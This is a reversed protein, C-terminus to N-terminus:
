QIILINVALINLFRQSFMPKTIVEKADRYVYINDRDCVDVVVYNIKDLEYIFYQATDSKLLVTYNNSAKLNKVFDFVESSKTLIDDKLFFMNYRAWIGSINEGSLVVEKIVKFSDLQIGYEFVPKPSEVVKENNVNLENPDTTEIKNKIVTFSIYFVLFFLVIKISKISTTKKRKYFKRM